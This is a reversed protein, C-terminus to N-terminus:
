SVFGAGVLARIVGDARPVTRGREWNSVTLATVGIERALREQSWGMIQARFYKLKPPFSERTMGMEEIKTKM